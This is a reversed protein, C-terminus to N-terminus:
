YSEKRANAIEIVEGNLNEGDLEWDGKITLIAVGYSNTTLNTNVPIAKRVEKAFWASADPRRLAVPDIVVDIDKVPEGLVFNRVAGGVVYTHQGVGLRRAVGSLFKMLAISMRQTAAQQHRTAVRIAPDLVVPTRAYSPPRKVPDEHWVKFLGIVKDQKRGKPVPEIVIVPNGHKDVTFQKIVGHHNKWRGYLIADGMNFYDARKMYTRAVREATKKSPKSGGFLVWHLMEFDAPKFNKTVGSPKKAFEAFGSELEELWSGAAAGAMGIKTLFSRVSKQVEPNDTQKARATIASKSAANGSAAKCYQSREHETCYQKQFAQTQDDWWRSTGGSPKPPDKKGSPPPQDFKVRAKTPDKSRFTKTIVAGAYDDESPHPTNHSKFKIGSHKEGHEAVARANTASDDFFELDEVGQEEIAQDIWRGKDYPDSSALAIVEVGKVGQAELFSQVASASGKPRATLIVVKTDKSKTYKVFEDFSKKIIRPRTVDNFAGFDIEDGASVTYHAFTASDMQVEEGDSKFVTISSQSSVLTDDFDFVRLRKFTAALLSWISALRLPSFVM